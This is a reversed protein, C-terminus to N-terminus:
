KQSKIHENHEAYTKSFKHKMTKKDRVFYLYESNEPNIAAKIATTSVTCIPSPPLGEHLYTNFKSKDERIRKPTVTEHSFLGYNLTGDMQLKMGKKLRNQIVSSVLPMESEDAAEKQIVSATILVEQWKQEDYAGLLKKSLNEHSAKSERLLYEILQNENIGIPIKYTEPVLFGDGIPALSSYIENLIRENLNLKVALDKLFIATTEGPILTIESMAAKATTLKHLFDFKALKGEGVDIWGSQPHGIYALIHKDLATVNFNKSKLYTIIEAVSGKPLFIVESTAVPRALYLLFSLSFIFIIECIIFFIQCIKAKMMMNKVM